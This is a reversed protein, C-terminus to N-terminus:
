GVSTLIEEYVAKIVMERRKMDEESKVVKEVTDLVRPLLPLLSPSPPIAAIVSVLMLVLGDYQEDTSRTDQTSIQQHHVTIEYLLCDICFWGLAAGDRNHSNMEPPDPGASAGDFLSSFALRLRSTNLM